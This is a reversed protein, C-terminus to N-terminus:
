DVAHRMSENLVVSIVFVQQITVLLSLLLIVKMGTTLSIAQRDNTNRPQFEFVSINM